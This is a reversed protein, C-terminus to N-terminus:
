RPKVPKPESLNAAALERELIAALVAHGAATMHVGDLFLTDSSQQFEPRRAVACCAIDHAGCFEVAREVFARYKAALDPGVAAQTEAATPHERDDALPQLMVMLWVNRARAWTAMREINDLYVERVRTLSDAPEADAKGGAFPKRALGSDDTLQNYRALSRGLGVFEGNVGLHPTRLLADSFDNWGDLVVYASAHLRDLRTIMQVLEQGSLYGIVAANVFTWSPVDRGLCATLSQDDSDLGFGFALSGGLVFLKPKSDEAIGGRLGHEDIKFHATAQGPYNAYCTFPDLVIAVEGNRASLRGGERNYLEIGYSDTPDSYATEVPASRHRVALYVAAATVLTSIALVTLKTRTRSRHQSPAGAAPPLEM